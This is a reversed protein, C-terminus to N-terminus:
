VSLSLWESHSESQSASPWVWAEVRAADVALAVMTSFLHASKYPTETFRWHSERFLRRFCVGQLLRFDNTTAPTASREADTTAITDPTESM